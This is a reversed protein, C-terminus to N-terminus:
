QNYKSNVYDTLIKKIYANSSLGLEERENELFTVISQDDDSLSFKITYMKVKDQYKKNSEPYYTSKRKPKNQENM